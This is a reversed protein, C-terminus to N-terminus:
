NRKALMVKHYIAANNQGVKQALARKNSPLHGDLTNLYFFQCQSNKRFDTKLLKYM